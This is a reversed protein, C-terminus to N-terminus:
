RLALEPTLPAETAPLGLERRLWCRFRRVLPAEPQGARTVLWYSSKSPIRLNFPEVLLGANLYLDILPRRGIVVGMGEIAATTAMQITDFKRGHNPDIDATRAGNEGAAALWESWGEPRRSVILLTHAALDRPERLPVAGALLSPACAPFMEEHVLEECTLGSWQPASLGVRIAVSNPTRAVAAPYGLDGVTNIEVEVDPNEAYFSSLRPVLWCSAFSPLSDILLIRKGAGEKIRRTTTDIAAFAGAVAELLEDGAKTLAFAKIARNILDTRLEEELLRLQHTVAAPTVGLEQAAAKISGLRGVAEFTRLATLSPIRYM